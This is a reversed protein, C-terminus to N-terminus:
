FPVSSDPEFTFEPIEDQLIRRGNEADWCGILSDLRYGVDLIFLNDIGMQTFVMWYGEAKFTEEAYLVRPSSAGKFFRYILGPDLSESPLNLAGPLHGATYKDADRLDVLQLGPEATQLEKYKHISIIHTKRNIIDLIEEGSLHFGKKRPVALLILIVMSATLILYYHNKM